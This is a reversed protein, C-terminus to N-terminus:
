RIDNNRSRIKIMAKEKEFCNIQKLNLLENIAISASGTGAGIDTLSNIDFDNKEFTKEIVRKVVEYTAPMRSFAYALAESEKTLTVNGTNLNNRYRSSVVKADKEIDKYNLRKIELYRDLLEM